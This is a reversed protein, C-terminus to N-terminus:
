RKTHPLFRLGNLSVARALAGDSEQFSLFFKRQCLVELKTWEGSPLCHVVNVKGIIKVFGENCYYAVHAGAPFATSGELHVTADPM